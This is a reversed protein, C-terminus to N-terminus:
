PIAIISVPSNAWPTGSTNNSTFETATPSLTTTAQGPYCHPMQYIGIPQMAATSGMAPSAPSKPASDPSSGSPFQCWPSNHTPFLVAGRNGQVLSRSPGLNPAQPYRSHESPSRCYFGYPGDSPGSLVRSQQLSGHTAYHPYITSGGWFRNADQGTSNSGQLVDGYTKDLVDNTGLGLSPQGHQNWVGRARNYAGASLADSVDSQSDDQANWADQFQSFGPNSANFANQLNTITQESVERGGFDTESPPGLAQDLTHKMVRTQALEQEQLAIKSNAALLEQKLRLLEVAKDDRAYPGVPEAPAASSLPGLSAIQSPSSHRAPDPAIIPVAQPSLKALINDLESHQGVLSETKVHEM